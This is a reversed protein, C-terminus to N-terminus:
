RIGGTWHIIHSDPEAERKEAQDISLSEIPPLEIRVVLYTNMKQIMNSENVIEYYEIPNVDNLCFHLASQFDIMVSDLILAADPYKEKEESRRDNWTGRPIHRWESGVRVRVSM